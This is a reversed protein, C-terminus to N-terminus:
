ESLAGEADQVKVPGGSAELAAQAKAKAVKRRQDRPSTPKDNAKRHDIVDAIRDMWWEGKPDRRSEAKMRARTGMKALAIRRAKIKDAIVTLELQQEPTPWKPLGELVRGYARGQKRAQKWGIPAPHFPVITARHTYPGEGLQRNMEGQATPVM